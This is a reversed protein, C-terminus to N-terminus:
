DRSGLLRFAACLANLPNRIRFQSVTNKNKKAAQDKQNKEQEAHAESQLIEKRQM